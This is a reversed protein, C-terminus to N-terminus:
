CKKERKAVIYLAMAGNYATNESLSLTKRLWETLKGIGEEPISGTEAFVKPLRDGLDKLMLEGHALSHDFSYWKEICMGSAEAWLEMDKPTIYHLDTLTIRLGYLFFLTLLVTGCTNSWNPCTIVLRGKNNLHKSFLKIAHAPDQVHELTGLSIIVDFMGSIDDFSGVSFFLNPKAKKSAEKIANKSFDLGYVDAGLEALLHATTGTGCGFDLTKKGSWNWLGCIHKNTESTDTGNVYKSFFKKYDKSYTDEYLSHLDRVRIKDNKNEDMIFDERCTKM